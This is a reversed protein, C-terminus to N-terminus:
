CKNRQRNNGKLVALTLHQTTRQVRDFKYKNLKIEIGIFFVIEFVTILPHNISRRVKPLESNEAKSDKKSTNIVEDPM